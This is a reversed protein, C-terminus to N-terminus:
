LRAEMEEMEKKHFAEKKAGEGGEGRKQQGCTFTVFDGGGRRGRLFGGHSM